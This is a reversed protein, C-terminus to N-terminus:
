PRKELLLYAPVCVCMHTASQVSYSEEEKRKKEKLLKNEGCYLTYNAM